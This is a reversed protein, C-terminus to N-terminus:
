SRQVRHPVVRYLHLRRRSQRVTISLFFTRRLMVGVFLTISEATIDKSLWGMFRKTCSPTRTEMAVSSKSKKLRETLSCHASITLAPKNVLSSTKSM